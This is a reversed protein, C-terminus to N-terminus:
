DISINSSRHIELIEFWQSFINENFRSIYNGSLCCGVLRCIASRSLIDLKTRVLNASTQDTSDLVDSM